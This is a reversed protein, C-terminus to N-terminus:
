AGWDQSGCMQGETDSFARAAAGHQPSVGSPRRAQACSQDICLISGPPASGRYLGIERLLFSKGAHLVISKDDDTDLEGSWARVIRWPHRCRIPFGVGRPRDEIRHPPHKSVDRPAPKIRRFLDFARDSATDLM